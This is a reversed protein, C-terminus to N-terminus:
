GGVNGYEFRIKERTCNILVLLRLRNRIKMRRQMVVISSGHQRHNYESYKLLCLYKTFQPARRVNLWRRCVCIVCHVIVFMTLLKITKKQQAIEPKPNHTLISRCLVIAPRRLIRENPLLVFLVFRPSFSEHKKKSLHLTM